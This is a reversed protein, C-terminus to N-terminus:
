RQKLGEVVCGTDQLAAVQWLLENVQRTGTEEGPSTDPCGNCAVLQVSVEKRVLEMRTDADSKEPAAEISVSPKAGLQTGVVLASVELM